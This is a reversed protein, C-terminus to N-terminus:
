AVDMGHWPLATSLTTRVCIGMTVNKTEERGRDDDEREHILVRASLTRCALTVVVVGEVVVVGHHRRWRYKLRGVSCLGTETRWRCRPCIIRGGGM